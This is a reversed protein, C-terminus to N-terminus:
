NQAATDIWSLVRWPRANLLGRLAAERSYLFTMRGTGVNTYTGRQMVAGLVLLHAGNAVQLDGDVFITGKFTHLGEVTLNGHVYLVGFQNTGPSATAGGLTYNGEVYTFGLPPQGADLMARTTTANRLRDQFPQDDIGLYYQFSPFTAFAAPRCVLSPPAAGQVSPGCDRVTNIAPTTAPLSVSGAYSASNMNNLRWSFVGTSWVNTSVAPVAAPPANSVTATPSLAIPAVYGFNMGTWVGINAAAVLGLGPLNTNGLQSTLLGTGVWASTVDTASLQKNYLRAFSTYPPTVQFYLLLSANAPGHQV